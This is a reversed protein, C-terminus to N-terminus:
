ECITVSGSPVKYTVGHRYFWVDLASPNYVCKGNLSFVLSNFAQVYNYIQGNTAYWVDNLNAVKQALQEIVHWNNQEDFEYSHGWVYFLYPDKRNRENNPSGSVFKETLVNLEPDNHHCTPNLELWDTPLGFSHTSNITRAYNIGCLAIYRKAEDNFAGYAYAMGNVIRGFMKELAKRDNLIEDIGQSVTLKTLFSHKAGHVAIEQGCNCFTAYTENKDMRKHSGRGEVGSNINFTGKLNYQSMISLLRKDTEVGDDYSLTFAKEKGDVFRMFVENDLM